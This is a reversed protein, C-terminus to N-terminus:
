NSGSGNGSGSGSDSGKWFDACSEYKCMDSGGAKCRVAVDYFILTLSGEAPIVHRIGWITVIIGAQGKLEIACNSTNIEYEASTTSGSSNSQALVEVHLKNDKIGYDNFAHRLNLAVMLALVGLGVIKKLLDIKM